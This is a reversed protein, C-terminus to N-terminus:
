HYHDQAARQRLFSVVKTSLTRGNGNRIHLIGIIRDNIEFMILLKTKM